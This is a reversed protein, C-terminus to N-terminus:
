MWYGWEGRAMGTATRGTMGTLITSKERKLFQGDGMKGKVGGADRDWALQGRLFVWRPWNRVEVGEFPTYDIRHHLDENRIVFRRQQKKAGNVGNAVASSAAASPAEEPYWIVIDADFGPL